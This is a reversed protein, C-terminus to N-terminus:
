DATKLTCDISDIDGGRWAIERTSIADEDLSDSACEIAEDESDADVEYTYEYTVLDTRQLKVQYKM